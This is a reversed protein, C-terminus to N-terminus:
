IEDSHTKPKNALLLEKQRLNHVEAEKFAQDKGRLYQLLGQGHMEAGGHMFPVQVTALGIEM